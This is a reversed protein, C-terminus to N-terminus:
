SKPRGPLEVFGVCEERRGSVDRVFIAAADLLLPASFRREAAFVRSRRV